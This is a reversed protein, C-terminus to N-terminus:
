VDVLGRLEAPAHERWFAAADDVDSATVKATKDDAADHPDGPPVDVPSAPAKAPKSAAFTTPPTRITTPDPM